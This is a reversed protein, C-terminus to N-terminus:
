YVVEIGRGCHRTLDIVSLERNQRVMMRLHTEPLVFLPPFFPFLFISVDALVAQKIAQFEAKTVPDELNGDHFDAIVKLGEVNQDTDILYSGICFVGDVEV